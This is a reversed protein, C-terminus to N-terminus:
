IFRPKCISPHLHLGLLLSTRGGTSGFFVILLNPFKLFELRRVWASAAQDRVGRLDALIRLIIKLIFFRIPVGDLTECAFARRPIFEVLFIWDGKYM